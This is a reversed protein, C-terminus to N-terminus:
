IGINIGLMFQRPTPWGGADVGMNVGGRRVEPDLGTYNTLTFLNTIHVYFLMQRVNLNLINTLDYGLQLNQLRLYSADEVFYTSPYQDIEDSFSIKPLSAKSNDDLYPSGWSEYLRKKSRNGLFQGFDIWRNVYNVLENGYSGYLRTSLSFGRYNLDINLGGTFDPHPDGIITRDDSNIVGDGNVDRFKFKGAENYSTGFAEPHAAAEADTQFIGDVIYGYFVPFATGTEAMTYMLQRFQSGELREDAVPSLRVIENIYRSLNLSINYGLEGGRASGRYGLEFDIGNNMMEGVNVSPASAEGRVDPIRQPFLMDVTNRRWLDFSMDWRQLFNAQFGFNYTTTSEWRVNPNGLSAARFGSSGVGTDQGLIPYFSNGIASQYTSYANYNGVRDNGTQGYGLRVMLYDLWNDTAFSMFEENSLRWGLSVAPFIGYRSDPGFRSSGDRRLVGEFFYTRNYSYNVRGFMSFLAWESYSGYNSQDREGTDLVMYLPNEFPYDNRSGGHYQSMNDVMESGLLLTLNHVDAFTNQYQLTNTWNWQFGFDSRRGSSAYTGRESFAREVVSYRYRDRARYTYGALSRFTLGEIFTADLYVNGTSRLEKDSDNKDRDLLFMANRANGTAEAQTGAFNGMVDYVPVIPQMRYTFSIASAEGQDSLYGWTDGYEIGIRKGVEIWNGMRSTINSRLNYREYGTMKLIGEERLYGAQLAYNTDDSGGAVRVSYEHYPAIQSIERMWNTGEKNAEMIIYTPTGNEHPMRDDYLSLDATSSGSPFIYNPIQPTPGSGYQPHAYDVRGDNAAKLWLMEGYEQTNMLDYERINQKFGSRAMVDVTATQGRRGQRTTVLIVGSAARAGYIAQSAADKLVTISEIEEPRVTAGPVGDVVWLPSNDNITGLGRILVSQGGGPTNSSTITVGSTSGRLAQAASVAAMNSIEESRVASVSGTVEGAARTAYGVAIVEDIGITETVLTVNIVNRGEVIVRQTQMGVYSFVLIADPPVNSLSYEGEINTVVGTTTGEIVISVGPLPVGGADVVRGSVTIQQVNTETTTLSVSQSFDNASVNLSSFLLLCAILPIAVLFKLNRKPLLFKEPKPKKKM